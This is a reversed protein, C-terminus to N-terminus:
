ENNSTQPAQQTTGLIIVFDATPYGLESAPRTQVNNGFSQQLRAKTGPKGNNTTQDIIISGGEQREADGVAVVTFGKSTLQNSFKSALGTTDGGNLIVISAAERVVPDNTMAKKIYQIIQSYDDIGAAPILASAGDPSRYSALLNVGNADNLSLSQINNSQIQKGLDYLRRVESPQFDTKTNKGIVDFLQGIKLPNTIVGGSTIKEKLALLMMRQHETRTFDSKEFGYGYRGDPTPNGRARALNLATQGDLKQPGNSLKLPGNDAKSINPDYLGRPDDSKITVNIGEVANVADRFASYNLKAYYHIPMDLQESIVQELLGMGGAPYGPQNFNDEEGFVNAANIKSYGYGPIDVWLDRPLSLMYAQKNNTDISVLMISDTLEAGSHGPNDTSVGALLINVQGKDEGRLKSANLFGLVNSDGGFVRGSNSFIKWGLWGGALLMFVATVAATRRLVVKWNTRRFFGPRKAKGTKFNNAQGPRKRQRNGAPVAPAQGVGAQHAGYSTFGPMQQRSQTRSTGIGAPRYAQSSAARQPASHLGPRRIRVRENGNLHSSRSNGSFGIHRGHNSPMFGDTNM